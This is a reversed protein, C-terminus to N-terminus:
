KIRITCELARYSYWAGLPRQRRHTAEVGPAFQSDYLSRTSKTIAKSLESSQALAEDMLRISKDLWTRPLRYSEDRIVEMDDEDDEDDEEEEADIDTESESEAGAGAVM